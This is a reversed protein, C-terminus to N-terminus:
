NFTFSKLLDEVMPRNTTDLKWATSSITLPTQATAACDADACSVFTVEVLPNLKAIDGMPIVQKYKYGYDNTIYIGNMAGKVSATSYQAYSIYALGQQTSSPHDYTIKDSDLVALVPGTTFETPKDQKPRVTVVMRGDVPQGSADTLKVMPSTVTLTGAQEAPTWDSPHKLGLPFATSTYQTLTAPTQPDNAANSATDKSTKPQKKAQAATQGTQNDRMVFYYYAGAASALLLLFLLMLLWKGRKKKPQQQRLSQLYEIRAQHEDVDSTDDAPEDGDDIPLGSPEPAEPTPQALPASRVLQPVANPVSDDAKFVPGTRKPKETPAVPPKVAKGLEPAGPAENPTSSQTEGDM